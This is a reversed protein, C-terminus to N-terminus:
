RCPGNFVSGTSLDVFFSGSNRARGGLRLALDAAGRLGLVRKVCSANFLVGTFVVDGGRTVQIGHSPFRDTTYSVLLTEPGTFTVDVESNIAPSGPPTLPNTADIDFSWANSGNALVEASETATDSNTCSHTNGRPWKYTFDRHTTGFEGDPSANVDSIVEGDWDFEVWTEARFTGGYGTHGDGRYVSSRAYRTRGPPEFRPNECGGVQPLLTHSRYAVPFVPDVVAPQPIWARVEIRYHDEDSCEADGVGVRLTAITGTATAADVTHPNFGTTQYCGPQLARPDDSALTESVFTVTETTISTACSLVETETLFTGIGPIDRGAAPLPHYAVEGSDVPIFFWSALPFGSTSGPGCPPDPPNKLTDVITTIVQVTLAEGPEAQGPTIRVADTRTTTRFENDVTFTVTGSVSASGTSWIPLASAPTPLVGSAAFALILAVGISRTWQPHWTVTPLRRQSPLM